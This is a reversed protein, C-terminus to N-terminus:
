SPGAGDGGQRADGGAPHAYTFVQPMTTIM